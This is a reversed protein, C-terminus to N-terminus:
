YLHKFFVRIRFRYPEFSVLGYNLEISSKLLAYLYTKPVIHVNGMEIQVM